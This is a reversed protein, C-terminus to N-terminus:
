GKQRGRGDADSPPTSLFIKNEQTLTTWLYMSFLYRGCTRMINAWTRGFTLKSSSTFLRGRYLHHRLFRDCRKNLDQIERWRGACKHVCTTPIRRPNPPVKISRLGRKLSVRAHQGFFWSKQRGRGDTDSPPTGISKKNAQKLTPWLYM